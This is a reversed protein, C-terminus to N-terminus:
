TARKLEITLNANNLVLNGAASSAVYLQVYDNASLSVLGFANIHGADGVSNSKTVATRSSWTTGNIRFRAGVKATNSPFAGISSWFRIEYVGAVSVTLRDTNFTTGYLMEGVFPAGAGTFLVYDSTTQLTPDTAAGIVFSNANNTIGMVGYSSFVKSNFGNAGDTLIIKGAVGGDSGLNHLNLSGVKSWSGSGVGNAIYVQHQAASDIGKPEHRQSDPIDKHQINAIISDGKRGNSSASKM